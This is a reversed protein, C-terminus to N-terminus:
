VAAIPVLEGGADNRVVCFVNVFGPFGEWFLVFQDTTWMISGLVGLAFRFKMGIHPTLLVNQLGRLPTEFGPGNGKPETPYVDV